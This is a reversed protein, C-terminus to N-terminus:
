LWKQLDHLSLQYARGKTSGKYPLKLSRLLRSVVYISSHQIFARCQQNTITAGILLFYDMIAQIFAKDNEIGCQQCKWTRDVKVISLSMCRDCYLGPLIEDISIQFQSLIDPQSPTHFKLLLRTIKQLERDDLIDTPHQRSYTVFRPLIAPNRIVKQKALHNQSNIEIKSSPNTVVVFSTNPVTKNLHKKLLNDLHYQQNQVQVIPDPFIEEKEEYTRVLQNFDFFLTGLMNKAEYIIFYRRSLLLIDIQFYTDKSIPIRLDQFIYYNEPPLQALYYDLSEEGRYGAYSRVLEERIKPRKPHNEPLRRLLAELILIKIPITRNKKIMRGGRNLKNM